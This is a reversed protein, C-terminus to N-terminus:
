REPYATVFRPVDERHLIIWVTLVSAGRGTSGIIRARIAYKQGYATRDKAEAEGEAAVRKLEAYLDKWNARTFGLGRFLGAKFRGVPHEPALLYDQIKRTDIIARDGNPLRRTAERRARPV